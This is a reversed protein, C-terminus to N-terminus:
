LRVVPSSSSANNAWAFLETQYLLTAVQGKSKVMSDKVSSAPQCLYYFAGDDGILDDYGAAALYTVTAAGESATLPCNSPSGACWKKLTDPPMNKTMPTEVFGPHISFATPHGAPPGVEHEKAALGAAHFVQLYKSLGYNSAPLSFSNNEHPVPTRALTKVSQVATCSEPHDGWSCADFSADSSVHLIRTASAEILDELENILLVHGLFNTQIVREFGDETMDSLGHPPSTIGADCVLVEIQTVSQKIDAACAKVSAFSSLDLPVVTVKSNGTAATINAAAQEGSGSADYSAIVVTANASALAKATEFGTLDTGKIIQAATTTGKCAGQWGYSAPLLLVLLFMSLVKM